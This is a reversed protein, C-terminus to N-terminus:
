SRLASEVKVVLDDNKGLQVSDESGPYGDIFFVNKTESSIRRDLFVTHGQGSSNKIAFALTGGDRAIQINPQIIYEGDIIKQLINDM